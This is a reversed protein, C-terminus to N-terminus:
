SLMYTSGRERRQRQTPVQFLGKKSRGYQRNQDKQMNKGEREIKYGMQIRSDIETSFVSGGNYYSCVFNEEKM